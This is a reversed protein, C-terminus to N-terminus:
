PTSYKHANQYVEDFIDAIFKQHQAVHLGVVLRQSESHCGKTHEKLLEHPDNGCFVFLLHTVDSPRIGVGYMTRRIARSVTTNNQESLRSATWSLSHPSPLGGDDFLKSEAENLTSTSLRERSKAEGKLFSISGGPLMMIGTIDDGRMSLEKNDKWISRNVLIYGLEQRAYETGFIEGLDASRARRTEPLKTRVTEAAIRKGCSKLVDIIDNTSIYHRPITSAAWHTGKAIKDDTPRLITLTHNLIAESTPLAWDSLKTMHKINGSSDFHILASPNLASATTRHTM